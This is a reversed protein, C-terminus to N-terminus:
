DLGPAEWNGDQDSDVYIPNSFAYPALGPYVASYDESVPGFVEVTVFSDKTFELPLKITQQRKQPTLAASLSHESVTQGNIQIELRNVPIWEAARVDVTITGRSGRFTGGMPTGLLTINLMPGTTGFANGSKLNAVFEAQDFTPVTDGEVGVMTRPVGVQELEHHSDSNASAVMKEGQQLFSIWDQRVAQLRDHFNEGGSNMVEILDFDLDRVGTSPHPEILVQNPQEHLHKHPNYPHAGIGMHDLFNGNDIIEAWDGPLKKGSLRLDFRPHNLQSIANPYAHKIAHLTDRLRQNEHNPLGNRYLKPKPQVPFFNVHGNTYPSDQTPLLSTVEVAPISVIKHDVGMKQIYPQYNTPLDHESAVMVEGHEAVFTRVRETEAFVNDFSLGSHVHLDSAIYGPTPVTHRPPAIKLETTEGNKLTVIAQELSYEPGRTAYIRYEGAPLDVIAKDSEVGALFLTSNANRSEIHDDFAVSAFTLEDSFSPQPTNNLGIFVLRMAEGQPLKLKAAKPLAITGLTLPEQEDVSIDLETKRGASAVAQLRYDGIPLKLKFEGASNPLVHSVPQNEPTFIHIASDPVSVTGSVEVSSTFLQDTVSAVDGREGVTIIEQTELVSGADLSLLPIQPLQTWGIRKGNGIYFTDTLLMFATGANDAMALRPVEIRQAGQIRTASVLQWGYAIGPNASRPSITIITDADRAAEDIAGVGRQTFDENQFGNSLSPSHSNFVFPEMSHYNFQFPTIFNLAEGDKQQYRKTINLQSPKDTSFFYRTTAKAGDASSEVVVSPAGNFPEISVRGANLPRSRSGNLLDNAFSFHDDARGCFGLDILGGGKSSFEGEHEVDAIVACLTGNSIFWDDVGGIADPGRKQLQAANELTIRSAIIEASAHPMFTFHGAMMFIFGALRASSLRAGNKNNEHM